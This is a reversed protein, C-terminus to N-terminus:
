YGRQMKALLQQNVQRLVSVRQPPADDCRFNTKGTAGKNKTKKSKAEAAVKKLKMRRQRADFQKQRLSTAREREKEVDRVEAPTNVTRSDWRVMLTPRVSAIEGRWGFVYKFTLSSRTAVIRDGVVLLEPARAPTGGGRVRELCFYLVWARACEMSAHEVGFAGRSHVIADRVLGSQFPARRHKRTIFSALYRRLVELALGPDRSRRSRDSSRGDAHRLLEQVQRWCAKATDQPPVEGPDLECAPRRPSDIIDEVFGCFVRAWAGVPSTADRAGCRASEVARAAGGALGAPAGALLLDSCCQAYIARAGAFDVHNFRTVGARVAQAVRTGAAAAHGVRTMSLYLSSSGRGPGTRGAGLGSGDGRLTLSTM